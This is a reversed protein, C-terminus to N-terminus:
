PTTSAMPIIKGNFYKHGNLAFYATFAAAESANIPAKFKPFAKSLMQTQVAGYAIANFSIKKEKYEEALCETLIALAGKSSSYASLGPFKVSGQVGGMSVINLIHGSKMLPIICRTLEAAAFVNVRYISEFDKQTIKHFPRNIIGAANNMLVDVKSHFNRKIQPLLKAFINEKSLDFRLPIINESIGEKKLQRLKQANRAIAIVTHKESLLKATEFGIGSSAGTIVINM